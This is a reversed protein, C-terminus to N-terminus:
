LTREDQPPADAGDRLVTKLSVQVYSGPASEIGPLQGEGPKRAAVKKGAHQRLWQEWHPWWSGPTETANDFWAQANDTLQQNTRYSYKGKAPPNVIGAIHGSGGLVFEVPGSHLNIGTYCSDWPAIHDHHAALFYVPTKITKLDIPVGALTIGGKECLRNNLYMSRLYFSHMLAPMNTADSNWFLLDFPFPEEGQLYNKIFYSWILDNARLMNFTMSMNGGDLYGKKHMQQELLHIQEEDIFAGMDGPNSFDLLTAFYTGSVIRQDKKAALYALTSALLTGGICFGVANIKDEGTALKIADLAALPGELMYNEFDKLAHRQDPNVWSIMFVSYGQEVLWKVMSKEANLDLIYYKNIWPPVILLPRQYVKTTQPQYQILQMLDNQYIVTGPTVAINEGVKFAKLDTMKINFYGQSQELDALMNDLGKLLNKGGSALTTHIIEPNTALFNSPSIADIFQRTYFDVKQSTKEDLGEVENVVGQIHKATLLYFQKIFNFLPHEQWDSHLFRKDKTDPKIRPVISQQGSWHLLSDQWLGMFDQWYAIQAQALKVPDSMLQMIFTQYLNSMNSMQGMTIDPHHQKELFKNIIHQSKSTISQLVQALDEAENTTNDSAFQQEQM